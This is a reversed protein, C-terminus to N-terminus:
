FLFITAPDPVPQNEIFIDGGTPKNLGTHEIVKAEWTSTNITYLKSNDIYQMAYLVDNEDFMIGSLGTHDPNDPLGNITGQYTAVGSSTDITWLKSYVEIEYGETVGWLTGSSDFAIDIIPDSVGTDGVKTAEGTAKDLRYLCAQLDKRM